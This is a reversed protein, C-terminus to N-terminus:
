KGNNRVRLGPVAAAARVLIEIDKIGRFGSFAAALLSGDNLELPVGGEWGIFDPRNVGFQGENLKGAYVLEEFHGTAYGTCWVQILKRTAIGFSVRGRGKDNGFIQGHIRGCPEIVAVAATGQSHERDIPDEMFLPFLRAVEDILQAGPSASNSHIM